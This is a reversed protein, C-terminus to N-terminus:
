VASNQSNLDSVDTSQQETLLQEQPILYYNVPYQLSSQVPISQQHNPQINKLYSLPETNPASPLTCIQLKNGLNGILRSVPLPEDNANRHNLCETRMYRSLFRADATLGAIPMGMHTDIPFINQYASLESTAVIM